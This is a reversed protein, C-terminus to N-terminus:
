RWHARIMQAITVALAAFGGILVAAVGLPFLVTRSALFTSSVVPVFILRDAALMGVGGTALAIGGFFLIKEM